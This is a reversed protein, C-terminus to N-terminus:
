PYRQRNEKGQTNKSIWNWPAGGKGEKNQAGQATEKCDVNLKPDVGGEEKKKNQALHNMSRHSGGGGQRVGVKVARVLHSSGHIWRVDGEEGTRGGEGVSRREGVVRGCVMVLGPGGV